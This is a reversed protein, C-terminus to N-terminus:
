FVFCSVSFRVKLLLKLLTARTEEQVAGGTRHVGSAIRRVDERREIVAVVM